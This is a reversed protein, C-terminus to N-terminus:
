DVINFYTTFDDGEFTEMNEEHLERWLEDYVVALPNQKNYLDWLHLNLAVELEALFIVNGKYLKKAKKYTDRVASEGFANAIAFDSVWTTTMEYGNMLRM